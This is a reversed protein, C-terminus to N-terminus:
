LDRPVRPLWRPVRARYDQYEDGFRRLLMPEEVLVVFLHVALWAAALYVLLVGAGHIIAQGLIVLGVSVYMPNRVFRYLGQAVFRRPPDLPNPTGQGRRVFDLACWAYGAIGAAALLWGVLHLPGLDAPQGIGADFRERASTALLWPVLGGVTGPVILTFLLARLALPM